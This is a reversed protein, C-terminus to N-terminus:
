LTVLQSAVSEATNVIRQRERLVRIWRDPIESLGFRAGLLAGALAGQRDSDGGLSVVASVGEAFSKAHQHAWIACVFTDVAYTSTRLDEAEMTVVKRLWRPVAEQEQEYTSFPTQNAYSRLVKHDFNEVTQMYLATEALNDLFAAAQGLLDRKWGDQVLRSVLFAITLSADACRPDFHTIQCSAVSEKVMREVDGMCYLGPVIARALSGNGCLTGSSQYWEHRARERWAEPNEALARLMDGSETDIGKVPMDLLDTLRCALDLGDFEKVGAYMEITALAQATSFGTEGQLLQYAGGAAMETVPGGLTMTIQSRTRMVHPGGLADGVAMGVICGLVRDRM